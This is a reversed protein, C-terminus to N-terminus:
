QVQQQSLRAQLQVLLHQKSQLYCAEQGNIELSSCQVLKSGKNHNGQM